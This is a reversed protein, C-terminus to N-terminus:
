NQVQLGTKAATKRKGRKTKPRPAPDPSIGTPRPKERWLFSRAYGTAGTVAAVVLMLVLMDWIGDWLQRDLYNGAFTKIASSFADWGRCLLDWGSATFGGVTSLATAIGDLAAGAPRWQSAWGYFADYFREVANTVSPWFKATVVNSLKSFLGSFLLDLLTELREWLSPTQPKDAVDPTKSLLAAGLALFAFPLYTLVIYVAVATLRMVFQRLRYVSSHAEFWIWRSAQAPPAFPQGGLIWEVVRDPLRDTRGEKGNLYRLHSLLLVWGAAFGFNEPKLDATKPSFADLNASVPDTPDYVNIWETGPVFAKEGVNIPARQPWIAAFKDLPSGYTLLGRFNKFLEDRYVVGKPSLWVPRAPLARKLEDAKALYDIPKGSSDDRGEGAMKSKVLDRWRKEDLYNPLSQGNEMIGNHAVVSGLSHALIYWRTYKAQAVDTMTRIMRRRISVRPPERYADLFGGDIRSQQVYLKVASVYNVFVKVPKIAGFNLLRRSVFTWLGLSLAGMLFLNSVAFLRWRAKNEQPGMAKPFKPMAMVHQGPLSLKKNPFRWISLGWLWFSAEKYLSYPENVDAWWVEHFHLHTDIGNERVIARVPQATWTDQDAKLQAEAGGAIEVTLGEPSRRRLADILHRVESDLHEFRRQEGIGHVFIIGIREPKAAM